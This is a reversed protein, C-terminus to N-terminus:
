AAVAAQTRARAAATAAMAAVAARRAQARAGRRAWWANMLVARSIWLFIESPTNSTDFSTRRALRQRAGSTGSAAQHAQQWCDRAGRGCAVRSV